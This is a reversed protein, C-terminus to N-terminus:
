EVGLYARLCALEVRDDTENMVRDVAGDDWAYGYWLLVGVDRMTKVDDQRTKMEPVAEFLREWFLERLDPVSDYYVFALPPDDSRSSDEPSSIAPHPIYGLLNELGYLCTGFPLYEAEAWDVLGTIEWTDEDVVINSPILDGHNLVVPYEQMAQVRALTTEAVQRLSAGPLNDSLKRLRSIISSGVKGPCRSQWSSIEQMPTDARTARSKPLAGSSSRWSQAMLTAFSEVLRRQKVQTTSDLELVRLLLRSLPIGRMKQMEYACLNAPLDLDMYRIEPALSAYIEKAANTISTDLAHQAPRIQVILSDEEKGDSMVTSTVLVGDEGFTPIDHQPTVLLTFSCFGQEEFEQVEYGHYKDQVARVCQLADEASLGFRSWFSTPTTIAM